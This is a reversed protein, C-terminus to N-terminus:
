DFLHGSWIKQLFQIWDGLYLIDSVCGISPALYYQAVGSECCCAFWEGGGNGGFTLFQMPYHADSQQQRRMKIVEELPWFSVYSNGLWGEASDFLQYFQIIEADHFANLEALLSTAGSKVAVKEPLADFM